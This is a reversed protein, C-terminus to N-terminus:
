PQRETSFFSNNIESVQCVGNWWRREDGEFLAGIGGVFIADGTFLVGRDSWGYDDYSELKAENETSYTGTGTGTGTATDKQKPYM